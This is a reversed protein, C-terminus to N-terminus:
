GMRDGRASSQFPCACGKGESERKGCLAPLCLGARPVRQCIGSLVDRGMKGRLARSDSGEKGLMGMCAQVQPWPMLKWGYKGGQCYTAGRREGAMRM